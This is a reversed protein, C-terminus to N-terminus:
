RAPAASAVTWEALEGLLEGMAQSAAEALGAAGSRAVIAERHFTHRSLLRRQTWDILEASVGLLVRDPEASSDLYLEDLRLSLLLDGRLGSTSAAVDRFRGTALLRSEALTQLSQAPREGWNGFQFYSRSSGDSSFVMRDSDYLGPPAMASVLLVRDIAAGPLPAAPAGADRLLYFDRRPASGLSCGGLLLTSVGLAPLGRMLRRRAADKLDESM